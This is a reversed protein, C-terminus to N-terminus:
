QITDLLKQMWNEVKSDVEVTKFLNLQEGDPAEVYEIEVNKGRGKEPPMIVSNVGMFIKKMHIEIKKPEKSQGIMELLDPDPLFFFRPFNQRKTMLFKSLQKQINEFAAQLQGLLQNFGPVLLANLANRDSDIRTMEDKFIKDKQKFIADESPM